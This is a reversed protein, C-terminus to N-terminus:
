IRGFKQKYRAIMTENGLLGGQHIYLLPRDFLEDSQMLTLFAVPDYLLDFTIGSSERLERWIAYLERYLRGFCYKKPPALISPHHSIDPDLAFFQEQLYRADGVCPVTYVRHPTHALAKSLFLATTGTGSPLFITLAREKAWAAIEQALLAVGRQAEACRAGEPVFLTGKRYLARSHLNKEIHWADELDAIDRLEMGNALAYALNGKPTELSRADFRAYYRFKWGREKAIYSLAAMANSHLSGYSVITHIPRPYDLLFSLKRAKNGGIIPHILDDRKLFLTRGRFTLEHM